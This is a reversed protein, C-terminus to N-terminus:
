SSDIVSAEMGQVIELLSPHRTQKSVVETLYAVSSLGILGDNFSLESTSSCHHESVIDHVAYYSSLNLYFLVSHFLFYFHTM